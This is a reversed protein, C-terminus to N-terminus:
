PKKYASNTSKNSHVGIDTGNLVLLQFLSAADITRRTSKL